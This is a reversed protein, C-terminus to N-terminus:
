WISDTAGRPAVTESVSFQTLVKFQQTTEAIKGSALDEVKIVMAYDGGGFHDVPLKVTHAATHGPKVHKRKFRAALRGHQDWFAFEVIYSNLEDATLQLNYVEFYLFIDAIGHAFTRVANPEVYRQNKVYPQGEKGPRINQSCQVASINLDDSRYDRARFATEIQSCHRTEHDRIQARLLYAGPPLTFCVMSIRARDASVTEAFSGVEFWDDQRYGEVPKSNHDLIELKLEYGARFQRGSKIFQLAEHSLQIYFEVFTNRDAGLYSSYDVYFRPGDGTSVLPTVPAKSKPIAPLSFVSLVLFTASILWQM